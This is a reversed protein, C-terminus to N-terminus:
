IKKKVDGLIFLGVISILSIILALVLNTIKEGMVLFSISLMLFTLFNGFLFTFGKKGSKYWVFSRYRKKVMGAVFGIVILIVLYVLPKLDMKARLFEDVMLFSLFVLFSNINNEMFSLFKWDQLRGYWFTVLMLGLYASIYSIGPKNWVSVWDALNGWTGWHILGFGIRGFVMFGILALWSYTILKDEQYDDKLNRWTLYLFVIIGLVKFIGLSM